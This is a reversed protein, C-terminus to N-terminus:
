VFGRGFKENMKLFEELVQTPTIVVCLNSITLESQFPPKKLLKAFGLSGRMNLLTQQTQQWSDATPKILSPCGGCKPSNQTFGSDQKIRSAGFIGLYWKGLQKGLKLQKAAKGHFGTEM